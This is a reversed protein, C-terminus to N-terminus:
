HTSEYAQNYVFDADEMIAELEDETLPTGDAHEAYSVYADCFDPADWAHVDEMEINILSDTNIKNNTMDNKRKLNPQSGHAAKRTSTRMISYKDVM